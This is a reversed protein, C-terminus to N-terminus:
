AVCRQQRITADFECLRDPHILQIKNTAALLHASKTFGNTAVVIGYDAQYHARAAAVEQVAKNGCPSSHLKCQLVIRLGDKTAVCDAGQDGTAPTPRAQWGADSLRRICWREFGLPNTPIQESLTKRDGPVSRADIQDKIAAIMDPRFSRWSMTELSPAIVRDIFYDLEKDFGKDVLVGYDDVYIMQSKKTRLTGLHPQSQKKVIAITRSRSATSGRKPKELLFSWVLGIILGWLAISLVLRPDDHVLKPFAKSALFPLATTAGLIMLLGSGNNTKGRMVLRQGTILKPVM